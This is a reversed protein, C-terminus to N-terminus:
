IITEGRFLKSMRNVVFLLTISVVSKLMSIATAFSYSGSVIGINYVYLDLVQIKSQNFANQFVFYQEFGANLFGAINLLLLVFYTSVLGPVKVHWIVAFRNAGDVAAADYLESDIGALAALYLIAGWGLSKWTGWLYMQLWTNSSQQLFLFPKELLGLKVLITNVAGSNSFLMFAMSYILVWSIFNPFTTITQVLKKYRPFKIESLLIAFLAPLWSFAIGLGSMVFTNRLVELTQKARVPNGFVSKIWYWGVFESQSLKIPPRFNYFAYSWGYLPLYSFVFVLILFPLVMLFYSFGRFRKKKEKAGPATRFDKNDM